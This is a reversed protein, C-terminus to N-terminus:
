SANRPKQFERLLTTAYCGAPLTFEFRLGEAEEIVRLNELRIVYPRRAGPTLNAYKIFSEASLGAGRLVREEREAVVGTPPKMSPGFLPGSVVIEREELRAQERAVDEVVFPGGSAAVQMVDGPLVQELVGDRLREALCVNFLASQVSSLALRLLFKRRAYPIQGPRATGQLLGWGLQLTELDRGFRQEGFYNPFGTQRLVDAIQEATQLAAPSVERLLISFRNGRLHGTRLKNRHRNVELVRIREDRIEPLRSECRVPVSIMQRTIAHRDKLGAMGIDQHAIGLMRALHSTLQEGSLGTKEIWLYLFEGDGEPLYAPIEEVRFDAPNQKLLGGIGPLNATLFPLEATLGAPLGPEPSTTDTDTM